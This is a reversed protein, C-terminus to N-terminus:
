APRGRPSIGWAWTDGRLNHGPAQLRPSKARSQTGSLLALWQAQTEVRRPGRPSVRGGGHPQGGWLWPPWM